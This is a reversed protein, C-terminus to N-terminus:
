FAVLTVDNLGYLIPKKGNIQRPNASFVSSQSALSRNFLGSVWKIRLSNEGVQLASSIDVKQKIAHTHNFVVGNVQVETVQDQLHTFMAQQSDTDWNM